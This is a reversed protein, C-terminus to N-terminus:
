VPFTEHPQLCISCIPGRVCLAISLAGAHTARQAGAQTSRSEGRSSKLERRSSEGGQCVVSQVGLAVLLLRRGRSSNRGQARM